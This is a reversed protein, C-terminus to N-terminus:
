RDNIIRPVSYKEIVKIWNSRWKILIPNTLHPHKKDFEQLEEILGIVYRPNM